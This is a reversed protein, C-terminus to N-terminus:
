PVRHRDGHRCHELPLLPTLLFRRRIASHTRKASLDVGLFLGLITDWVSFRVLNGRTWLVATTQERDCKWETTPSVSAFELDIYKGQTGAVPRSISDLCGSRECVLRRM